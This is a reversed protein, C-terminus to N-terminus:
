ARDRRARAARTRWGGLSHLEVERQTGLASERGDLIELLGRVRPHSLTGDAALHGGLTAAYQQTDIAPWQNFNLNGALAGPAYQVLGIVANGSTTATDRAGRAGRAREAYYAVLDPGPRSREALNTLHASFVIRNSLTLSGLRLPSFLYPFQPHRM